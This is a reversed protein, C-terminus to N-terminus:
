ELNRKSLKASALLIGIVIFFVVMVRPYFWIYEACATFSIGFFSSISAIIMCKLTKSTKKVYRFGKKIAMYMMAFYSIFGILGIELFLEMYLMHSHPAKAAWVNAFSSYASKFAEPGIGVGSIGTHKILKIVGEWLYVRYSNSTDKLSGITFIRNIISDPLLPFALFAIVGIPIILRWDYIFAFVLTSIAFAIYCSRSYTLGLAIMSLAFSFLFALKAWKSKSSIIMAYIFPIIMVIVQAFNNPNQFTSYARGPMGRNTITDTLLEDIEIGIHNQYIAYLSMVCLAAIIVGVLCKLTKEDQILGWIIVMFMVSAIFLLGIRLSDFFVPSIFVSSIVALIFAVVSFSLGKVNFSVNKGSLYLIFYIISFAFAGIFAYLNNWYEHKITLMLFIFLALFYEAKIKKLTNNYIFETFSTDSIKKIFNYISKFFKTIKKILFDVFNYIFSVKYSKEYKTENVVLNRILSKSFSSVIKSYILSIVYFLYTNKLYSFVNKLKGFIYSTFSLTM